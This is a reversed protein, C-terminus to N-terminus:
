HQEFDCWLLVRYFTKEEEYIMERYISYLISIPLIQRTKGSAVCM